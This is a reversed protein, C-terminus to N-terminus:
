IEKNILNKIFIAIENHDNLDLITKESINLNKDFKDNLKIFPGGRGSIFYDEKSLARKILLNSNLGSVQLARELSEVTKDTIQYLRSLVGEKSIDASSYRNNYKEILASEHKSNHTKDSKRLM